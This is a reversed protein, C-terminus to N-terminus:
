EKQEGDEVIRRKIKRLQIEMWSELDEFSARSLREPWQFVVHGEDLVFVDEEVGVKPPPRRDLPPQVEQSKGQGTTETHPTVRDADKKAQNSSVDKGATEPALIASKTLSAFAIADRYVRIVDDASSDSYPSKGEDRRDLTLYTKLLMDSLGDAPGYKEWIEQHTKPALAARQIAAKRKESQPDPDLAIRVADETLQFKRKEGSGDDTLLGYQLLAAATTWLAGTKEGYGWADAVARVGVANERVKNHLEKVRDIAKGLTIQPYPPSRFRKDGDADARNQEAM